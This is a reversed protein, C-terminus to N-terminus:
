CTDEVIVKAFILECYVLIFLEKLHALGDAIDVSLCQGVVTNSNVVHLKSFCLALVILFCDMEVSLVLLNSIYSALEQGVDIHTDDVICCSVM